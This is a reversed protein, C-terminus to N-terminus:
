TSAESLRLSAWPHTNLGASQARSCVYLCLARLAFRMATRVWGDMQM